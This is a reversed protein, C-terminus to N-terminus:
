ETFARGKRPRGAEAVEFRELAALVKSPQFLVTRHGLRIFPIKRQQTLTRLSREPIGCVGSMGDYDVLQESM